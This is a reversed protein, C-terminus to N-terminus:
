EREVSEFERIPIEDVRWERRIRWWWLLPTGGLITFGFILILFATRRLPCGGNVWMLRGIGLLGLSLAVQLGVLGYTLPRNSSVLSSQRSELYEAYNLTFSIKM